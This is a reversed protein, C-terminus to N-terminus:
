FHIIRSHYFGCNRFSETPKCLNLLDGVPTFWPLSGILTRPRLNPGSRSRQVLTRRREWRWPTRVTLSLQLRWEAENMLVQPWMPSYLVQPRMPLILSSTVYPLILSTTVHPIYFKPDCPPTCSKPDFPPTYSKPDCPSYFVQPWMPIPPSYSKRDCPPYM